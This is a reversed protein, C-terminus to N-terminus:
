PLSTLDGAFSSFSLTEGNVTDLEMAVPLGNWAEFPSVTLIKCPLVDFLKNVM